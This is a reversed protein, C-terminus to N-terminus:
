VGHAKSHLKQDHRIVVAGDCITGRFHKEVTAHMVRVNRRICTSTQPPPICLFLSVQLLAYCLEGCREQLREKIDHAHNTMGLITICRGSQQFFFDIQEERVTSFKINTQVLSVIAFKKNTQM